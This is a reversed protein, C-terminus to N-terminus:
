GALAARLVARGAGARRAPRGPRDQDRPRARRRRAPGHRPTAGVGRRLLERFVTEDDPGRHWRLWLFPGGQWRAAAAADAALAPELARRLVQWRAATGPM